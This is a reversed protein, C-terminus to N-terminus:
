ECVEVWKSWQRAIYVRTQAPSGDFFVAPFEEPELAKCISEKGKANAEASRSQSVSM